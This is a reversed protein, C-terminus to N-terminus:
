RMTAPTLLVGCVANAVDCHTETLNMFKLKESHHRHFMAAKTVRNINM